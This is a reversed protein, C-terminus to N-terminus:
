ASVDEDSEPKIGLITEAKVISKEAEADFDAILQPLQEVTCDFETKCKAEVEELRKRLSDLEGTL